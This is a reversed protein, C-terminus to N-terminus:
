PDSCDPFSPTSNPERSESDLLRAARLHEIRTPRFNESYWKGNTTLREIEDWIWDITAVDIDVALRQDLEATFARLRAKDRIQNPVSICNGMAQQTWEIMWKWQEKTTGTPPKDISSQLTDRVNERWERLARFPRGYIYASLPVGLLCMLSVILLGWSIRSWIADKSDADVHVSLPNKNAAMGEM